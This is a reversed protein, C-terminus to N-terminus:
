YKRKKPDQRMDWIDVIHVTTGQIRYALLRYDDINLLRISPRNPSIRGLKPQRVLADIQKYVADGFNTATKMSGNDHLYTAIDDFKKDARKNWIIQKVM